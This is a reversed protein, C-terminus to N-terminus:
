SINVLVLSGGKASGNKFPKVKSNQVKLQSEKIHIIAHKANTHSLKSLKLSKVQIAQYPFYAVM